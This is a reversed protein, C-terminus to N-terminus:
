HPHLLLGVGISHTSLGLSLSWENKPPPAVSLLPDNYQNFIRILQLNAKKRLAVATIAFGTAAIFSGLAWYGLNKDPGYRTTAPASPHIEGSGSLLYGLGAFAACSYLIPAGIGLQVAAFKTNQFKLFRKKLSPDYNMYPRLPRAYLGLPQWEATSDARFYISSIKKVSSDLQIPTIPAHYHRGRRGM